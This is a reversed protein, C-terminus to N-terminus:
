ALISSFKKQLECLTLMILFKFRGLNDINNLKILKFIGIRSPFQVVIRKM